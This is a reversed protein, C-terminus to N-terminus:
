NWIQQKGADSCCHEVDTRGFHADELEEGQKKNRHVEECAEEPLNRELLQVQMGGEM